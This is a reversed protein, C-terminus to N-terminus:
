RQQLELTGMVNKSLRSGPLHSWGNNMMVIKKRTWEFGGIEELLNMRDERLLNQRFLERQHQVWYGLLGGRRHHVNCHNNRKKFLVLNQYQQLWKQDTKTTDQPARDILKWIFGISNVKRKRDDFLIGERFLQRQRMVWNGLKPYEKGRHPVKTDGYVRRYRKLLRFMEDWLKDNRRKSPKQSTFAVQGFGTSGSGNSLKRQGTMKNINGGSFIQTPPFLPPSKKKGARNKRKSL